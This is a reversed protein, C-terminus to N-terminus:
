FNIGKANHVYNSSKAIIFMLFILDILYIVDLQVLDTKNM